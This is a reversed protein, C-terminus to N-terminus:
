GPLVRDPEVDVRAGPEISQEAFWGQRVELATDYPGGPPYSPCDQSADQYELCPEMQHISVIQGHRLYAIDLPAPTDRMWFAGTRPEDSSWTFLMGTGDPLEEVGMLGQRRRKPEDAVRVQLRHSSGDDATVTVIAQPWTDASTGFVVDASAEAPTPGGIPEGGEPGGCGPLALALAAAVAAHGPLRPRTPRRM